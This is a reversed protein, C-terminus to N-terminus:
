SYVGYKKALEASYFRVINKNHTSKVQTATGYLYSHSTSFTVHRNIMEIKEVKYYTAHFPPRGTKALCTKQHLHFSAPQPTIPHPLTSCASHSPLYATSWWARERERLLPGTLSSPRLQGTCLQLYPIHLCRTQRHEKINRRKSGNWVREVESVALWFTGAELYPM